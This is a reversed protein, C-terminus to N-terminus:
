KPGIQDWDPPLRIRGDQVMVILRLDGVNQPGRLKIKQLRIFLDARECIIMERVRKERIEDRVFFVVRRGVVYDLQNTDFITRLVLLLTIVAKNLLVDEADWRVRLQGITSSVKVQLSREVFDRLAREEFGRLLKARGNPKEM